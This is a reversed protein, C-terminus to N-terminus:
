EAGLSKIVDGFRRGNGGGDAVAHPPRAGTIIKSAPPLPLPPRIKIGPVADPEKGGTAEATVPRLPLDDAKIFQAGKLPVLKLYENALKELRKPQNLYSWEARLVSVSEEERAAERGLLAIKERSDHVKQSTYFLSIGCFTALLLWLLTSKRM